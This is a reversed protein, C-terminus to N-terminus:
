QNLEEVLALLFDVDTGSVMFGRQRDSRIRNLWEAWRADSLPSSRVPTASPIVNGVVGYAITPLITEIPVMASTPSNATDSEMGRRSDTAANGM